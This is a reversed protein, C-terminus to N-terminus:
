KASLIAAALERPDITVRKSITVTIPAAEDVLGKANVLTIGVVKGDVDYRIAHGELGEDFDVARAPDGVHLYLVDAEADYDIRDFTTSGITISV